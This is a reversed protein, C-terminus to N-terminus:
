DATAGSLKVLKGWNDIEQAVITKFAAPTNGVPVSGQDALTKRVGADQLVKQLAAALKDVVAPPTGAPAFVGNWLAVEFGPLAEGVAPVNPLRQARTKTTVALARLKGGEIFPLVEVLPSFVAQIQGGILDTNAPAGGKYAVHQMDGKAMSNFLAGSLHSASGAGASGYNVPEKKAQVHAVFEQLSKVPLQNNVTLVNPILAVQSVPAM